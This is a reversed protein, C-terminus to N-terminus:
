DYLKGCCIWANVQLEEYDEIEKPIDLEFETAFKKDINGWFELVEFRDIDYAEQEDRLDDEWYEKEYTEGMEICEEIQAERFYPRNKLARLQTRNLKQREIVYSANDMSSADPDPYFNWVSVHSTKPVSKITPEYDGEENWNPYEKDFAFPGKMIGTGLLAMEFATSRLQKSAGSEELQDLIKKEMRKAAIMAPHFTIATPTVGAGEKLGEIEELDDKLPGLLDKLTAGAPLDNGDGKFGYPSAEEEQAGEPAKPDFHVSEVVGEPITTPDVSIPFRNNAFLVDVIQGYAALVKTKTVKVFVRSKEQETFQVDSSYTGRYNRYSDLWRKEDNMRAVKSKHFKNTIYGVLSGSVDVPQEPKEDLSMVGEEPTKNEIEEEAM